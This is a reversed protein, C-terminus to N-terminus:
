EHQHSEKHDKYGTFVLSETIQSGAEGWFTKESITLGDALVRIRLAGFGDVSSPVNASILVENENSVVKTLPISLLRQAEWLQSDYSLKNGNFTIQALSNRSEDVELAFADIELGFTPLIELVFTQSALKEQFDSVGQSPANKDDLFLGVGGIIAFWILIVALIRL